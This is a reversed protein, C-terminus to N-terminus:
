KDKEIVVEPARPDNILGGKPEEVLRNNEDMEILVNVTELLAKIVQQEGTLPPGVGENTWKLNYSAHM